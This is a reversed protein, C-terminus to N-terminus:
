GWLPQGTTELLCLYARLDFELQFYDPAMHRCLQYFAKDHEREKLHALEHAVIMRLFPEPMERFLAAVRIESKAKLKAGQVRSIRANTGLVQKLISLRSDFMVKGLPSATRLYAGKLQQVYGYLAADSRVAHAHPYKARLVNALPQQELLQRVQLILHPPYGALYKDVASSPM